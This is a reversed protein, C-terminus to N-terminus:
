VTGYGLPKVGYSMHYGADKLLSSIEKFAAPDNTHVIVVGDEYVAPYGKDILFTVAEDKSM